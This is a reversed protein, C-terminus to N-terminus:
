SSLSDDKWDSRVGMFPNYKVTYHPKGRDDLAEDLARARAIFDDRGRNWAEMGAEEVEGVLERYGEAGDTDGYGNVFLCFLSKLKEVLLNVDDGLTMCTEDTFNDLVRMREFDIFGADRAIDYARTGIFPFFLSWRFRGPQIRALLKVTDMIDKKEEYPLGIMVFASTHLGFKHAVDFAREIDANTMHRNLVEKRIRDSGSELGFKVIKCGADRLFRAMEEDFVRAHANCVFGMDTVERYKGSFERLWEKDFTFIDDDFIFMKIREYHGVLYEIEQMVEDVTHRRLYEKPLHGHDKYLRMIKHNLCYTCRFPCGRSATLGVWGDKADILQQFDFVTYDKFPLKTIDTYPRLPELVPNGNERYAMNKIGKPAGKEVLELFAEEGEGICLCDVAEEALVGRPDMTPHIGGFVIPGNFYSKINKAMELAYKYQNTLVSFGIMDPKIRLIDKRIRGSDLPYGLKENINLLYTEHGRSKLLGSIYAIGYNFGVQTNINPYIFLVKMAM